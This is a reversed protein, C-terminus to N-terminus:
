VDERELYHAYIEDLSPAYTHVDLVQDNQMLSRLVSMKQVQECDLRYFSPAIKQWSNMRDPPSDEATKVQIRYDLGSDSRLSDLSGDAVKQGQNMVMVRDINGELE